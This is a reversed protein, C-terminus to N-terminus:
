ERDKIFGVVEEVFGEPNEEAICHGSGKVVRV